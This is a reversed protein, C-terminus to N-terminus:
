FQFYLFPSEDGLYSLCIIFLLALLFANKFSPHFKTQWTNKSFFCILLSIGLVVFFRDKFKTPIYAITLFQTSHLFLVKKLWLTATSLNPSRFFIWCLSTYFFTLIIQLTRKKILFISKDKCLRETTLALGHFLGWILFTWNAGHWFGGIVMTILLNFYTRLSGRRNGGLSIYLYDRLWSSLTIHWRQWFETMSSSKYPSNFNQPFQINMMLGLGIAMDSYGSFDFYLQMTYGSMALWAELHSINLMNHVLPDVAAAIRDAILTKKTLGFIFFYCGRWFHDSNFIYTKVNELQPVISNHRVLPGSIQHPFFTVYSAFELLGAHSKSTGRYVDIVYSMSQFTYFSIGIPLILHFLPLLNQGLLEQNINTAFFDYYKFFGLVSLNLLISICVLRKKATPTRCLDITRALYFDTCVTFLLLFVYVQSWYAYFCISALLLFPLQIKKGKLFYFGALVIPLFIFIFAYSNFLM